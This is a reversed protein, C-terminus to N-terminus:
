RDDSAQKSHGGPDPSENPQAALLAVTQRIRRLADRTILYAQIQKDSMFPLGKRQRMRTPTQGANKSLSNAPRSHM